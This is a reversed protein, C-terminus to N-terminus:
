KNTIKQTYENQPTFQPPSGPPGGAPGSSPHCMCWWVTSLVGSDQSAASAAPSPHWKQFWTGMVGGERQCPSFVGQQPRACFRVGMDRLWRKAYLWYFDTQLVEIPRRWQWFRCKDRPLGFWPWFFSIKLPGYWKLSKFHCFHLPHITSAEARDKLIM